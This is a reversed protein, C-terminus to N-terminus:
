RCKDLTARLGILRAYKDEYAPGVDSDGDDDDAAVTATAAAAAASESEMSMDGRQMDEEKKHTYVATDAAAAAAAAAAATADAVPPTHKSWILSLQQSHLWSGLAVFSSSGPPAQLLEATCDRLMQRGLSRWLMTSLQNHPDRPLPHPACSRSLATLSPPPIATSSCVVTVRGCMADTSM